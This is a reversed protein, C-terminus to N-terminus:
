RYGGIAFSVGAGGRLLTAGGGIMTQASLMLAVHRNLIRQHAIGVAAVRPESARWAAFGPHV